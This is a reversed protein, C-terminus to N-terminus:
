VMYNQCKIHAIKGFFIPHTLLLAHTTLQINHTTLQINGTTHLSNSTTLQLNHTTLGLPIRSKEILKIYLGSRKRKESSMGFDSIL